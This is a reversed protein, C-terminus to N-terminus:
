KEILTGNIYELNYKPDDSWYKYYIIQPVTFTVDKNDWRFPLFLNDNLQEDVEVKFSFDSEYKHQDVFNEVQSLYKKTPIELQNLEYNAKFTKFGFIAIFILLGVCILKLVKGQANRILLYVLPIVWALLMYTDFNTSTIYGEGLLPTRIVSIALIYVVVLGSLIYILTYKKDKVSLIGYVILALGILNFIMFVINIESNSAVPQFRIQPLPKLSFTSPLIIECIWRVSIVFANNLGIWINHLNLLINSEHSALPNSLNSLIYVTFYIPIVGFYVFSQKVKRNLFFYVGMAVFMLIGLEYFLSSLILSVISLILDLKKNTQNFQYAYYFGTLMLAVFLQYGNIDEYLVAGLSVSCVSFYLTILLALIGSKFKWLLRFLALSALLHLFLGFVHWYVYNTGFWMQRLADLLYTLPRFLLTDGPSFGGPSLFFQYWEIHNVVNTRWFFFYTESKLIQEFSFWYVFLTAIFIIGVYITKKSKM